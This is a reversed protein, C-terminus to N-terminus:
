GAPSLAAPITECLTIQHSFSVKVVETPKPKEPKAGDAPMVNLLQLCVLSYM